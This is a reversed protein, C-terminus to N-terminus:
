GRQQLCGCWLLAGVQGIGAGGAGPRRHQNRGGHRLFAQSPPHGTVFTLTVYMVVYAVFERDKVVSLVTVM